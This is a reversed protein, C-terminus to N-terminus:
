RVPAREMFHQVQNGGTRTFGLREYLRVARNTVNVNLSAPVGRRDSEALVGRLVTAGIGSNRREPLVAIDVIHAEADSWCVVVWGVPAGGESVISCQATPYNAQIGQRRIRYQMDLLQDRMAEPWAWAALEDALTAILLRRLFAEDDHTLPNVAVM